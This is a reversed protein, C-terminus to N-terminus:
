HFSSLIQNFFDMPTDPDNGDDDSGFDLKDGLQEEEAALLLNIQRIVQYHSTLPVTAHGTRLRRAHTAFKGGTGSGSARPRFGKAKAAKRVEQMQRQFDWYKPDRQEPDDGQRWGVATGIRSGAISKGTGGKRPCDRGFHGSQGCCWCVAQKPDIPTRPAQGSMVHFSDLIAVAQGAAHARFASLDMSEDAAIYEPCVSCLCCDNSGELEPSQVLCDQCEGLQNFGHPRPPRARGGSGAGGGIGGGPPRRPRWGQYRQEPQPALPRSLQLDQYSVFAARLEPWRRTQRTEKMFYDWAVVYQTFHHKVEKYMNRDNIYESTLYFISNQIKDLECLYRSVDFHETTFPGRRRDEGQSLIFPDLSLNHLENEFYEILTEAVVFKRLFAAWFFPPTAKHADPLMQFWDSATCRETELEHSAHLFPLAAIELLKRFPMYTRHQPYLSLHQMILEAFHMMWRFAALGRVEEYVPEGSFYPHKGSEFKRTAAQEASRNDYLITRKNGEALVNWEELHGNARDPEFESAVFATYSSNYPTPPHIV